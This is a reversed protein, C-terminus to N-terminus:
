LFLHYRQEGTAGAFTALIWRQCKVWAYLFATPFITERECVCLCRWRRETSVSQRSTVTSISLSSGSAKAQTSVHRRWLRKKFGPEFRQRCLLSWKFTGSLLKRQRVIDPGNCKGCFHLECVKQSGRFDRKGRLTQNATVQKRQMENTKWKEFASFNM